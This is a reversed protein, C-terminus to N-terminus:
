AALLRKGEELWKRWYVTYDVGTWPNEPEYMRFGMDCLNNGSAHNNAVTYTFAFHCQLSEAYALRKKILDHHISRGRFEPLVAARCLFARRSGPMWYLKVGAHGVAKDGVYALWWASADEREVRVDDPFCVEDIHLIDGWDWYTARVLRPRTITPKM